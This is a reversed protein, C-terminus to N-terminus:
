SSGTTWRLKVHGSLQRERQNPGALAEDATVVYTRGDSKRVTIEVEFSKPLRGRVLSRARVQHLLGQETKRLRQLEGETVEATAKPDIRPV